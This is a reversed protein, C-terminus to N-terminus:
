LLNTPDPLAFRLCLGSYIRYRLLVGRHCRLVFKCIMWDAFIDAHAVRVITWNAKFFECIVLPRRSVSCLDRDLGESTPLRRAIDWGRFWARSDDYNMWFRLLSCMVEKFLMCTQYTKISLGTPSSTARSEMIRNSTSLGAVRNTQYSRGPILAIRDQLPCYIAYLRVCTRIDSSVIM